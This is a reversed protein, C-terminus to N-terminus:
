PHVAWGPDVAVVLMQEEDLARVGADLHLEAARRQGLLGPLDLAHLRLQGQHRAGTVVHESHLLLPPAGHVVAVDGGQVDEANVLGGGLVVDQPQLVLVPLLNVPRVDRHPLLQRALDPDPGQHAHDSEEKEDEAQGDAPAAPAASM